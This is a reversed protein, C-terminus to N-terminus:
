AFGCNRRVFCVIKKRLFCFFPFVVFNLGIYLHFKLFPIRIDVGRRQLLHGHIHTHSRQSTEAMKKQKNTRIQTQIISLSSGTKTLVTTRNRYYVFVGRRKQKRHSERSYVRFM